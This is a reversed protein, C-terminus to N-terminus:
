AHDPKPNLGFVYEPISPEIVAKVEVEEAAVPNTFPTNPSSPEVMEM